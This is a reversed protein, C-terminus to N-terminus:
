GVKKQKPVGKSNRGRHTSTQSHCNPCLFELNGLRNDSRDGNIHHLELTLSRKRWHAKRGCGSCRYPLLNERLVVAKVIWCRKGTDSKILIESAPTLRGRGPQMHTLDLGAGRALRTLTTRSAGSLDAAETLSRASRVVKLLEEDDYCSEGSKPGSCRSCVGCVDARYDKERGCKCMSPDVHNGHRYNPNDKGAQTVSRLLAACAISCTVTAPNRVHCPYREFDNGCQTCTWTQM